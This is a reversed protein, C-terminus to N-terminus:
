ATSSDTILGQGALATLLSALAANSGKAGTVTPKAALAHGYFGVNGAVQLAGGLALLGTVGAGQTFSLAMVANTEDRLYLGADTYADYLRWKLGGNKEFTLASSAGSASNLTFMCDASATADGVIVRPYLGLVYLPKYFNAQTPILSFINVGNGANIDFVSRTSGNANNGIDISVSASLDANSDRSATFYFPRFIPGSSDARLIGVYWEMTRTTPTDWYDAEFGMYISPEATDGSGAPKNANWGFFRIPDPHTNFTGTTFIERWKSATQNPDATERLIKPVNLGSNASGAQPVFTTSLTWKVCDTDYAASSKHAVNASVVDNNPSIVQQEIAYAHFPSWSPVYSFAGAAAASPQAATFSAFGVSAAIGMLVSKRGLLPRLGVKDGSNAVGAVDQTPSNTANM